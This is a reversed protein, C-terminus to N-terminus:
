TAKTRTTGLKSFRGQSSFTRWLTSWRWETIRAHSL